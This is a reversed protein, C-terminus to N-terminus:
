AIMELPFEVKSKHRKSICGSKWSQWHITFYPSTARKGDLTIKDYRSETRYVTRETRMTRIM